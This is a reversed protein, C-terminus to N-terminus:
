PHFTPNELTLGEATAAANLDMDASILTVPALGASGYSASVHLAAALQVADYGRLGHTEALLMARNALAETIEIVQYEATLHARFAVRAAAADTSAITGGRERRTIAAIFEVATVRVIYVSNGATPHIAAQLWATGVEAVYRKSLASTDVFYASSM